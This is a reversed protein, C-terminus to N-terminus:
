TTNFFRVVLGRVGSSTESVSTLFISTGSKFLRECFLFTGSVKRLVASLSNLIRELGEPLDSYGPFAESCMLHYRVIALPRSFWKRRPSTSHDLAPLGRSRTRCEAAPTGCC